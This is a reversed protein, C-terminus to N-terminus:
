FLSENELTGFYKPVQRLNRFLIDFLMLIQWIKFCFHTHTYLELNDSYASTALCKQNRYYHALGKNFPFHKRCFVCNMHARKGMCRIQRSFTKSFKGRPPVCNRIMKTRLKVQSMMKHSIRLFTTGYRM